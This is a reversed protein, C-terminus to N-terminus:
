KNGKGAMRGMLGDGGWDLSGEVLVEWYVIDMEEMVVVSQSDQVGGVKEERGVLDQVLFPADAAVSLRAAGQHPVTCVLEVVVVVVAAVAVVVVVVAVVMVVVVAVVMLVM